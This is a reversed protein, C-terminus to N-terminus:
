ALWRSGRMVDRGALEGYGRYAQIRTPRLRFLWWDGSEGRPDWGVAAVFGDTLRADAGTSRSDVLEADVVIVDDPAGFAFRAPRGAGDLNRATSSPVRTAFAISEGDWWASVPILHPGGSSDATALWADGNRELVAQVDAKRQQTSRLESM